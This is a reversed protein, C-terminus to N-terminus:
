PEDTVEPWPISNNHLAVGWLFLCLVLFCLCCFVAGRMTDDMM